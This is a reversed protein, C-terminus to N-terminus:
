LNQTHMIDYGSRNYPFSKPMGTRARQPRTQRIPIPCANSTSPLDPPHPPWHGM